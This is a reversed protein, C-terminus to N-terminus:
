KELFHYTHDIIQNHPIVKLIFGRHKDADPCVSNTNTIMVNINRFNNFM